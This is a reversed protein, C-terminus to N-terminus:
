ASDGDFITGDFPRAERGEFRVEGRSAPSPAYPSHAQREREARRRALEDAPVLAESPHPIVPARYTGTLVVHERHPEPHVPAVTGSPTTTTGRYPLDAEYRHGTVPIPEPDEGAAERAIRQLTERSHGGGATRAREHDDNAPTGESADTPAPGCWPELAARPIRWPSQETSPDLRSAEITGADIMRRVTPISAQLLEAAQQITLARHM